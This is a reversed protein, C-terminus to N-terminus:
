KSSFDFTSKVFRQRNRQEISYYRCIQIKWKQYHLSVTFMKAHVFIGGLFLIIRSMIVVFMCYNSLKPALDNVEKITSRLKKM